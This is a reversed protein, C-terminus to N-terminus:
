KNESFDIDEAIEAPSPLDENVLIDPGEVLVTTGESAKFNEETTAVSSLGLDEDETPAEEVPAEEPETEEVGGETNAAAADAEAQAAEEKAKAELEEIEAQLENTLEDGYNLTAVLSKLIKLKRPKNEVDALLSQINSVAQVRSTLNERYDKENQTLPAKMKLTFNNLYSTLGKNILILNIADTLMQIDANQVRRVGNAYVASIITLATGGNFGAADDTWGFYQKPIGYSSYFKNNWWDLDALDKVNVDGGISDVTIAGQGNHTAFYINNEIPGPNNYESMSNGTNMATRQEILEKVRRLTLQVQEKPMDGVEVSVKRLMSSRTIRNLLAANELLSKERWIKYSDYLLSKGRRVQYSTANINANYDTDSTFIDIKEPFRTCNDDLCAHVFDDAQYVFVDNSKLRYNAQPFTSVGGAATDTLDFGAMNNPVEIYGYTKGYKTLEFMSGPDTVMEVYYSYQDGGNHVNVKVNENLVDTGKSTYNAVKDIADKKFLPDNYDSERYLKLYVDGYKLLCYTWGYINKDVNMVNLLYNIFKSIKPDSSECWVIHGNDAVACVDEAYTRIISSVTSDQSMTDILQYIQDRSNSISTFNELATTDLGGTLGAAVINDILTNKVDIDLKTTNDLTTPVAQKGVLSNKPKTTKKTEAM